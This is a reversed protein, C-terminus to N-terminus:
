NGTKMTFSINNLKVVWANWEGTHHKNVDGDSSSTFGALVFSNNDSSTVSCAVDWDSGGITQEWEVSGAYNLKVIWIDSGGKNIGIDGNDSETWGTVIYGDSGSNIVSTATDYGSGGMSKEWELNGSVDLKVIWVDEKDHHNSVHGDVSETFGVVLIGNDASQVLAYGVDNNGGGLSKEWELIGKNDIKLVWLDGSGHNKSVDGNCSETYGCLAFGGDLTQTISYLEDYDSGGYTYQWEMDGSQNLKVIWGDAKGKNMAIDYDSSETFGALVFGNDSTQVVSNLIDFESGGLTVDWEVEGNGNLKLVRADGNNIRGSYNFDCSASLATVVYGGDNTCVVAYAEDFGSSGYNQQWEVNGRSSLKTLWIDGYICAESIAIDSEIQGAVIFGGDPTSVVDRASAMKHGGLVHQWEIFSQGKIFGASTILLLIVLLFIQKKM